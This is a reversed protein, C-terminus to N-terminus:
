REKRPTDADRRVRRIRDLRTQDAEAERALDESSRHHYVDATTAASKHRLGLQLTRMPDSVGAKADHDYKVFAYSHRLAHPTVNMGFKASIRNFAHNVATSTLPQGSKNIWIFGHDDDPTIGGRRLLRARDLEIWRWVELFLSLSVTAHGIGGGKQVVPFQARGTQRFEQNDRRPFGHLHMSTLEARRIGSEYLVQAILKDRKNAISDIFSVVTEHQLWRPGNRRQRRGPNCYGASPMEIIHAKGAMGTFSTNVRRSSFVKKYSISNRTIYGNAAAFRMFRGVTKIRMQITIPRLGDAEKLLRYAILHEDSLHRWDIQIAELYDMVDALAYAYTRLTEPSSTDGVDDGRQWLTDLWENAATFPVESEDILLYSGPLESTAKAARIVRKWQIVQRIEQEARGIKEHTPDYPGETRDRSERLIVRLRRVDATLAKQLDLRSCRSIVRM